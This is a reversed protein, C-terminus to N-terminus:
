KVKSTLRKRYVSKSKYIISQLMDKNEKDTTSVVFSQWVTYELVSLVLMNHRRIFFLNIKWLTSIVVTQTPEAFKLILSFTSPWLLGCASFEFTKGFKRSRLIAMAVIFKFKTIQWYFINPLLYVYLINCADIGWCRRTTCDLEIQINWISIGFGYKCVSGGFVTWAELM